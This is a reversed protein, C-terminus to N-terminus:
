TTRGRDRRKFPEGVSLDLFARLGVAGRRALGCPPLARVWRSTRIMCCQNETIQDHTGGGQDTMVNDPDSSHSWLDALHGIEQVVVTGDGESDVTVWDSGPYACGSVVSGPPNVIDRVFWVTVLSCCGCGNASFWTFFRSFMGSADCTTTDLYEQKRVIELDCVVMNINCRRFIAAADRLMAQVNAIPIGPNGADDALVKACVGLFRPPRVGSLCLLLAPGRVIWDIVWCVWKLIYIVYEVFVEIWELVRLIVERCVWDWVTEVITLVTTVTWCVLKTVWECLKNLPWPLWSCVNEEVWECVQEVVTKITTVITSVWDCITEIVERIVQIIMRVVTVVPSLVAACFM